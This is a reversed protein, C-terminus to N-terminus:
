NRLVSSFADLNELTHNLHGNKAGLTGTIQEVHQLSQRLSSIGAEMNKQTEDTLINNVATITNNLNALLREAQEKLPMLSQLMDPEIGSPLSSGSAAIVPSDGILIRIANGSMLGTSYIQAVSNDPISYQKKIHVTVRFQQRDEEYIIDSVAGIKLGKLFVSSSAALGDVQEYNIYYADHTNFIDRGKLFDFLWYMGAIIVFAYIGLKVEKKIKM